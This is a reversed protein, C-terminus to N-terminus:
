AHEGRQRSLEFAVVSAAAAANLSEVHSAMPLSVADTLHARVEASMGVSENGIVWASRQPWSSEYLSRTAEGALGFIPIRHENLHQVAAIASQCNWIAAHIAVGASAKVALPNLPSCGERPLIIASAGSAWVSRIVMGLNAPTTLGDLLFIPRDSLPKDLAQALDLHLPAQVDLAVGQDQKGHKSIRSLAMASLREVPLAAQDARRLIAEIMEGRAHRAIFLKQSTIRPDNLAEYVPKRGFLTLRGGRKFPDESRRHPTPTRQASSDPRRQSRPKHKSGHRSSPKSPNKPQDIGRHTQRKPM